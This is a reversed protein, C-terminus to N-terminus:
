CLLYLGGIVFGPNLTIKKEGFNGENRGFTDLNLSIQQLIHRTEFFVQDSLKYLQDYLSKSKQIKKYSTESQINFFLFSFGEPSPLDHWPSMM